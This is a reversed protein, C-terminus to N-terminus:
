TGGAKDESEDEDTVLTVFDVRSAIFRQAERYSGLLAKALARVEERAKDILGALTKMTEALSKGNALAGDATTQAAKAAKEARGAQAQADAIRPTLYSLEKALAENAAKGANSAAMKASLAHEKAEANAQRIEKISRKIEALIEPLPKVMIEGLEENEDIVSNNKAM